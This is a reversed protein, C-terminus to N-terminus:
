IQKKSNTNVGRTECDELRLCCGRYWSMIHPKSFQTQNTKLLLLINNVKDNYQEEGELTNTLSIKFNYKFSKKRGILLKAMLVANFLRQKSKAVAINISYGKIEISSNM